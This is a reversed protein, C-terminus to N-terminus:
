IHILSLLLTSKGCGSPGIVATIQREPVSLSLNDVAPNGSYSITVNIAQLIEQANLKGVSSNPTESIM